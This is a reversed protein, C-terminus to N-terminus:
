WFGKKILLTQCSKSRKTANETDRTVSDERVCTNKWLWRGPARHAWVASKEIVVHKSCLPTNIEEAVQSPAQPISELALPSHYWRHFKREVLIFLTDFLSSRQTRNSTIIYGAPLQFYSISIWWILSMTLTQSNDNSLYDNFSKLFQDARQLLTVQDKRQLSTLLRAPRIIFWTLSSWRRRTQHPSLSTLFSFPFELHTRRLGPYRVHLIICLWLIFSRATRRGM